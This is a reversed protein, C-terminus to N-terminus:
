GPDPATLLDRAEEATTERLDEAVLLWRTVGISELFTLDHGAVLLAGEYSHRASTLQRLGSLDLTRTGGRARPVPGPVTLRM